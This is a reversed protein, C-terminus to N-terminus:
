RQRFFDRGAIKYYNFEENADKQRIAEGIMGSTFCYSAGTMANQALPSRLLLNHRAISNATGFLTSSIGYAMADIVVTRPNLVTERLRRTGAALSFNGNEDLYNRREMGIDLTRLATGMAVGKLATFQPTSLGFSGVANLTAKLALGKVGGLSADLIQLKLPDRDCLWCVAKALRDSRSAILIAISLNLVRLRTYVFQGYIPCHSYALAGIGPALAM